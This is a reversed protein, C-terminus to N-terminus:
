AKNKLPCNRGMTQNISMGEDPREYNVM